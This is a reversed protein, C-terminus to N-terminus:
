EEVAWTKEIKTSKTEKKTSVAEKMIFLLNSSSDINKYKIKHDTLHDELAYNKGQNNPKSEVMYVEYEVLEQFM